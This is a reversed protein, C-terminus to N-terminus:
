IAITTAYGAMNIVCEWWNEKTADQTFRCHLIVIRYIDGSITVSMERSWYNTVFRELDGKNAIDVGGDSLNTTITEPVLATITISVKFFGLDLLLPSTRAPLPSVVAGSRDYDIVVSTGQLRYSVQAPGTTPDATPVGGAAGTASITIILPM